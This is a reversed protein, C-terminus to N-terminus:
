AQSVTERRERLQLIQEVRFRLAKSKLVHVSEKRLILVGAPMHTDIVTFIMVYLLLHLRHLAAFSQRLHHSLSDMVMSIRELRKSETTENWCVIMHM